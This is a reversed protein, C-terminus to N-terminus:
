VAEKLMHDALESMNMELLISLAADMGKKFDANETLYRYALSEFSMYTGIKDDMLIDSLESAAKEEDCDDHAQRIRSLADDEESTTFESPYNIENTYSFDEFISQGIENGMESSGNEQPSMVLKYADDIEESQKFSEFVELFKRGVEYHSPYNNIDSKYMTSGDKLEKREWYKWNEKAIDSGIFDDLAKAVNKNAMVGIEYSTSM